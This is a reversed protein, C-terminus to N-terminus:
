CFLVRGVGRFMDNLIINILKFGINCVNELVIEGLVYLIIIIIVLMYCFFVLICKM